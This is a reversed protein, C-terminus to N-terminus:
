IGQDYDILDFGGKRPQWFWWAATDRYGIDSSIEVPWDDPDFDLIRQQRDAREIAAGLVAGINAASWDNYFEQRFLSQGAEPGYLEIYIRLQRALAEKTIAGTDNVTLLEAFSYPDNKAGEYTSYGHNYGRATYIFLAWGNNEALIPSLYAHAMPNATSWESYTIGAPPSGLLSNFNDSGVVQWSAGSKLKIFMEQERTTERIEQPFSEEIRRKGSHPNIADWIAKRAQSYEPLMHWYTAPREHAAICAHNLAIEDKGARRHWVAVAHKGGRELYDWLNQQYPRPQWNNAPIRVRM